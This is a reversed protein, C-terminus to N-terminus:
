YELPPILFINKQNNLIQFVPEEVNPNLHVPYIIQ